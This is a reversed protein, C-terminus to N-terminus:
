SDLLPFANRHVRGESDLCINAIFKGLEPALPAPKNVMDLREIWPLKQHLEAYKQKLGEINNTKPRSSDKPALITNLGPKLLGAAFAEQLQFILKTKTYTLSILSM